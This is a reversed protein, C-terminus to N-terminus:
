IILVELQMDRKWPLNVILSLTEVNVIKRIAEMKEKSKKLIAFIRLIKGMDCVSLYSKKAILLNDEIYFAAFVDNMEM